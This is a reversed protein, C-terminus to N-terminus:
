AYRYAQTEHLYFKDPDGKLDSILAEMCASLQTPSINNRVASSVFNPLKMFDPPIFLTQGTKKVRKHSRPENIIEVNNLNEEDSSLIEQEVSENAKKRDEETKQRKLCALKRQAVKKETKMLKKNASGMSFSRKNEMDKIFEVDEYKTQKDKTSDKMIIDYIDAPYFKMTKNLKDKFKAINIKSIGKERRLKPISLIKRFENYLNVIDRAANKEPKTTIGAKIYLPFVQKDFTDTAVQHLPINPQSEKLAIFSLLVQKNTPLKGTKIQIDDITPSTGLLFYRHDKVKASAM